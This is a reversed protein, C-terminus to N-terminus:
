LARRDDYEQEAAEAMLDGWVSAQMANVIEDPDEEVVSTRRHVIILELGYHKLFM